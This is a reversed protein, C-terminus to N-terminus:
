HQLHIRRFRSSDHGCLGHAGTVDLAAYGTSILTTTKGFRADNTEIVAPDLVSTAGISIMIGDVPVGSFTEQSGSIDVTGNNIFAVDGPDPYGSAGAASSWLAEDYWDGIGGFWSRTTM